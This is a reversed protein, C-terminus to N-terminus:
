VEYGGQIRQVKGHIRFKGEQEVRANDQNGGREAQEAKGRRERNREREKM